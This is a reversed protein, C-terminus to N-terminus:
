SVSYGLSDFSSFQGHHQVYLQRQHQSQRSNWKYSDPTRFIGVDRIDSDMTSTHDLTYSDRTSFGGARKDIPNPGYRKYSDM